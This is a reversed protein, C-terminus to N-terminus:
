LSATKQIECYMDRLEERGFVIPNNGLREPNVSDALVDLDGDPIMVPTFNMYSVAKRVREVLENFTDCHAAFALENLKANLEEDDNAYRCLRRLCPVICLGVSHGHSIGYMSTLKYSMAHPATTKSINIAKGSINSAKMIIPALEANGDVYGEYCGLIANMAGVAYERSETTAKRALYSEIAQCLADLLSSKRHYDPLDRLLDSDLIVLDPLATAHSVSLKVGAQYVVAFCTAESGTGATTPVAIHKIRSYNFGCEPFNDPRDASVYLKICKAVDISSGGGVSVIGDCMNKKFIEAGAIVDKLDPNPTFDSFFIFEGPISDFIRKIKNRLNVGCVVMIKNEKLDLSKVVNEWNGVVCNQERYDYFRIAESVTAYDEANDIEGVFGDRYSMGVINMEDSIENLANEAYVDTIGNQVLERVKNKWLTVDRKCLKYLPQFAFCDDDFIGVSVEKLKNNKFRGKFDKPPLEANENYLCLSEEKSRLMESVTMRNFVLDGHLILLDDDLLDYALDMSVIYNTTRYLPNRVFHFELNKYHGAVEYIQEEFPGTTIVFEKIGCESLIRIQRELVTEGNYLKIMCKPNNRTLEGLRSGLGSNFILAKM